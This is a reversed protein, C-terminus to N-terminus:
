FIHEQLSLLPGNSSEIPELYYRNLWGRYLRHRGGRPNILYPLHIIRGDKLTLYVDSYICDFSTPIIEITPLVAMDKYQIKEIDIIDILKKFM